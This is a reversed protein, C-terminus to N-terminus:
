RECQRCPGGDAEATSNDKRHSCMPDLETANPDLEDRDEAGACDGVQRTRDGNM